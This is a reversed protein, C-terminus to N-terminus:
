KMNLVQINIISLLPYKSVVIESYEILNVAVSISVFM